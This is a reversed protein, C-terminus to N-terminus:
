FNQNFWKKSRSVGISFLVAVVFFMLVFFGSYDSTQSTAATDSLAESNNPDVNPKTDTNWKAYLTTDAKVTYHEFDWANELSTDSFWGLFTLNEKVPDAPKYATYGAFVRQSDIKNGGNTDFELDFANNNDFVRFFCVGEDYCTTDLTTTTIL